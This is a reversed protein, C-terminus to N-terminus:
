TMLVLVLFDALEEISPQNLDRHITDLFLGQLGRNGRTMDNPNQILIEDSSFVSSQKKNKQKM